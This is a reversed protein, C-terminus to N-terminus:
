TTEAQRTRLRRASARVDRYLEALSEGDRVLGYIGIGSTIVLYLSHVTLSFALATSADVGFVLPFVGVIAGQM